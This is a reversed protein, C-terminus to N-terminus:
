APDVREFEHMVEVTEFGFDRNIDRMPTNDPDTWTHVRLREGFRDRLTELNRVKLAAGLRHGRHNSVVLTDDQFVEEPSNGPVFMLSYGAFAGSHHRAATTLATFGQETLRKESERLREADWVKPEHELEGTPVDREMTNRMDVYADVFEDPCNATWSVFDYEGHHRQAAQRLESLRQAPLPLELVMREETHLSEFGHKLAFRSGPHDALEAGLPVDVETLHKHRGQKAAVAVGHDLLAGGVGTGRHEPAVNLTWEVTDLNEKLSYDLKLSGMVTDGDFAAYVARNATTSPNRLSAAVSDFAFVLPFRRGAVAGAHTETYWARLASVDHPDI